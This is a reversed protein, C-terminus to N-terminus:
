QASLGGLHSKNNMKGELEVTIQQCIKGVTKPFNFILYM